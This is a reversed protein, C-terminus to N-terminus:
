RVRGPHKSVEHTTLVGSLIVLSFTSFISECGIGYLSVMNKVTPASEIIEITEDAM